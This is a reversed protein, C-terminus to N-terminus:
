KVKKIATITFIFVPNSLREEDSNSSLNYSNFNINGEADRDASFTGSVLVKDGKMLPKLMNKVKEDHFSHGDLIISSYQPYKEDTTPTGKSIMLEVDIVGDILDPEISLIEAEWSEAKGKLKDTIFHSVKIKTTDFVDKKTIANHQRHYTSDADGLVKIFALEDAARNDKQVPAPQDCSNLTVIAVVILFYVKKM